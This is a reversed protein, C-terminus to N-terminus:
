GFYLFIELKNILSQNTQKSNWQTNRVQAIRQTRNKYSLFVIALLSLVIGTLIMDKRSTFDISSEVVIM